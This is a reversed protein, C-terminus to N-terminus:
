EAKIQKGQIVSTWRSREQAAYRAFEAPTSGMPEVGHHRMQEVLVPDSLAARIAASYREVLEVPTAAPAVVGQWAAAEYPMAQEAFTSVEPLVASRQRSPVAIAMLRGAKILPASAAVDGFMMTIQGGAIDQLAQPMGKYPVHTSALKNQDLWLAMTVHHPTGPGTSGFSADAGQLKLWDVLAGLNRAALQPQVVLVMPLRVLTSIHAFDSDAQYNISKYLGPNLTLTSMGATLITNGDPRARAVEAAAIMTAAGPKNEVVVSRKLSDAVHKAVMRTVLDSGGGPPFPVIWRLPVTDQAFVRAPALWAATAVASCARGFQRRGLVRSM